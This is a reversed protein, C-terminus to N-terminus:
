HILDGNFKPYDSGRFGEATCQKSLVIVIKAECNVLM